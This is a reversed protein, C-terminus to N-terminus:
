IRWVNLSDLVTSILITALLIPAIYRIFVRYLRERKFRGSLRVEQVIADPKLVVGVFVCTLLAVIPMIVSNSIFDFFDLISMDGITFGRWLGFGLSCPIGLLLIVGLTLLCAKIRGFRFRDQLVSVVTEMLSISSTLAAFLVLLFFMAGIVGGAGGMSAFVKPMTEFMLPAGANIASEDGGSFAFVAPVIMLGALLAIGTDFWEIQKASREIDTDKRMYSGYTVMIGMALSMSYFMQGMAALVTQVSFRSWDPTVYYLVGESAGPLTLAYVTVVLLLVVLLPTLLKGAREIGKQVGLMVIVATAFAYFAGWFLPQGTGGIFASFYGDSAAAGGAGTTFAVFYKTVWGGLVCYYSLVIVPVFSSLVGLFSWKKNLLRYAGIVSHGVKRGLAIETVMLTFGFTVVLAVYVLLFIGGGYRAALYPFRWINGLGVASGAAALVFGIRSSFSARTEM